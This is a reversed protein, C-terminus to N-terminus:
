EFGERCVCEGPERSGEQLTTLTGGCAFCSTAKFNPQYTGVECPTCAGNQEYTGPACPLCAYGDACFRALDFHSQHALASTNFFTEIFLLNNSLEEGADCAAGSIDRTFCEVCSSSGEAETYKGYACSICAQQGSTESYANVACQNCVGGSEYTGAPCDDYVCSAPNQADWPMIHKGAVVDCPSCTYLHPSADVCVSTAFFGDECTLSSVNGCVHVCQRNPLDATYDPPCSFLCEASFDNLYTGVSLEPCNMIKNPPMSSSLFTGPTLHSTDYCGYGQVFAYRIMQTSGPESAVPYSAEDWIGTNHNVTNQANYQLPSLCDLLDTPELPWQPTSESPFQFPCQGSRTVTASPNPNCIYSAHVRLHDFDPQCATIEIGAPVRAYQISYHNYANPDSDHGLESDFQLAHLSRHLWTIAPVSEGRHNQESCTNIAVCRSEALADPFVLSAEPLTFLSQVDANLSDCVVLPHSNDMSAFFAHYSPTLTMLSLLLLKEKLRKM